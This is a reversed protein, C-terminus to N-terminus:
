LLFRYAKITAQATKQWSFKAAQKKGKTILEQRLSTDSIVQYIAGAIELPNDPNILIASDGTVEPLSATNATVVPCGLTMAELVPLGFGEYFSPYIFVDAKQYYDAVLDDALYDLHQISDRFPSQSIKEFIPEYKWGKKGILILNHDLKYRDKLYNFATILNIINKRPELTSVFLLYPKTITLSSPYNPLSSYRSALPTVFIKEPNVGLYEIIDRKTSASNAIVLDTWQLSQKIRQTYTKVIGTVFQPYKMFTVDHITMVKRSQRCPYVVHDLGHLIDPSDLFNELYPILPNPFRTLINSLSVPIPLCKVEPYSQLKEPISLNGRLWNKVSPQFCLSLSFNEQNQLKALEAILHYAYLGIGSPNQRIPTGDVLIKLM